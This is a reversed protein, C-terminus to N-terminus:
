YGASDPRGSSREQESDGYCRIQRGPETQGPIGLGIKCKASDNCYRRENNKLVWEFKELLDFISIHFHRAIHHLFFIIDVIERTLNDKDVWKESRWPKWSFSDVLESVEMFLGLALQDPPHRGMQDEFDTIREWILPDIM